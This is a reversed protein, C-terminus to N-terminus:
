AEDIQAILIINKGFLYELGIKDLFRSVPFLYRDYIEITKKNLKDSNIFIKYIIACLFGISDAYKVKNIKYGANEIKKCLDKKSYRRKHELKKDFKSYLINFAPVYLLLRGNKALLRGNKALKQKIDVLIEYDHEIHELVNFSYILDYKSNKNIEELNQYSIFGEKNLNECYIKDPEVCNIIIPPPPLYM